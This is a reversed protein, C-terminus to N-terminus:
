LVRAHEALAHGVIRNCSDDFMDRDFEIEFFCLSQNEALPECLFLIRHAQFFQGMDVSANAFSEDTEMRALRAQVGGYVTTPLYNMGILRVAIQCVDLQIILAFDITHDDFHVSACSVAHSFPADREFITAMGKRDALLGELRQNM